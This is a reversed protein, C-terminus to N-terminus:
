SVVFQRQVCNGSFGDSQLNLGRVGDVIHLAFDLLLLADGWILLTQNEGTFLEFIATGKRVIIDLFLRGKM